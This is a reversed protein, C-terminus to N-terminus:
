KVISRGEWEPAKPVSMVDAITPAIDLITINELKEGTKFSDGIFFMPITMDESLDSGHSRGHGGHDATVIITYENGYAEYVRKVNEIAANIYADMIGEMQATMTEKAVKRPTERELHVSIETNMMNPTMFITEIGANKLAVFIDTLAKTYASLGDMGNMVDNLGFCVVCLDPHYKLVDKELRLAGHPANGGSIGANIINVPVSPYLSSLIRAVYSHYTSRQDYHTEIEGNQKLFLEFCGQTVSDGLFCITVGGYDWNNEQKKM